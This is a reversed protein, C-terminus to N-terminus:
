LEDKVANSHIVGYALGENKLLTELGSLHAQGINIYIPLGKREATKLKKKIINFVIENRFKVIFDDRIHNDLDALDSEIDSLESTNAKQLKKYISYIATLKEDYLEKGDKKTVKAISYKSVFHFYENWQDINKAWNRYFNNLPQDKGIVELKLKEVAAMNGSERQVIYQLMNEYPSGEQGIQNARFSNSVTNHTEAVSLSQPDALVALIFHTFDSVQLNFFAEPQNGHVVNRYTAASSQTVELDARLEYEREFCYSKVFDLYGNLVSSVGIISKKELGFVGKGMQTEESPMGEIGLLIKGENAFAVLHRKREIDYKNLHNEGVLYVKGPEVDRYDSLDINYAIVGNISLIISLFSYYYKKM